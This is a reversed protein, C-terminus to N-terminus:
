VFGVFHVPVRPKGFGAEVFREDVVVRKEEGTVLEFLFVDGVEIMLEKLAHANRNCFVAELDKLEGFPV